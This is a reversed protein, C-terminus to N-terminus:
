TDVDINVVEQSVVDLGESDNAVAEQCAMRLGSLSQMHQITSETKPKIKM